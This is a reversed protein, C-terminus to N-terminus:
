INEKADTTKSQFHKGSIAKKVKAISHKVKSTVGSLRNHSKKNPSRLEGETSEVRDPVDTATTDEKQEDVDREDEESSKEEESRVQIMNKSSKYLSTRLDKGKIIMEQECLDRDTPNGEKTQETPIEGFCHDDAQKEKRDDAPTREKGEQEFESAEREGRIVETFPDESEETLNQASLFSKESQQSEKIEMSIMEYQLDRNLAKKQIQITPRNETNPDLKQVRKEELIDTCVMESVLFANSDEKMELYKLAFDRENKEEITNKEAVLGENKVTDILIEPDPTVIGTKITRRGDSNTEVNRKDGAWDKLVLTNKQYVLTLYESAMAVESKENTEPGSNTFEKDNVESEQESKEETAKKKEDQTIKDSIGFVLSENKPTNILRENSPGVLDASSTKRRSSSETEQKNSGQDKPISGDKSYVQVKKDSSTTDDSEEKTKHTLNAFGKDKVQDYTESTEATVNKKEDQPRDHSIESVWSKNKAMEILIDEGSLLVNSSSEGKQKDSGHYNLILTDENTADLTQDQSKPKEIAGQREASIGLTEMIKSNEAGELGVTADQKVAILKEGKEKLIQDVLIKSVPLHSIGVQRSEEVETEEISLRVVRIEEVEKTQSKDEAKWKNFVPKNFSEEKSAKEENSMEKENGENRNEKILPMGDGELVEIQISRTEAIAEIDEESFDFDEVQFIHFLNLM